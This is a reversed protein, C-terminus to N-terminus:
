DKLKAEADELLRASYDSLTRGEKKGRAELRAKLAPDVYTILAVKAM